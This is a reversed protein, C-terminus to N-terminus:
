KWTGFLGGFASGGGGDGGGGKGSGGAAAQERIWDVLFQRDALKRADVVRAAPEGRRADFALLTPIATIMYDSALGAADPADFEVPVYNVGGRDEGVRAELILSRLLPEVARCSPCWSATWLTLLPVDSATSLSLYTYLSNANRVSHPLVRDTTLQIRQPNQHIRTSPLYPHQSNPGHVRSPHSPM